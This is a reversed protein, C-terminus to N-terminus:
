EAGSAWTADPKRNWDVFGITFDGPKPPYVQVVLVNGKPHIVKTVDVDFRRFAGFTSDASAVKTGNLFINASYNIGDFILRVDDSRQTGSDLDFTTRYWWPMLFPQTSITELNKGFYPDRYVGNKVLASM